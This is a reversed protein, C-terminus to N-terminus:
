NIQSPTDEGGRVGLSEALADEEQPLIAYSRIEFLIQNSILWMTVAERGIWRVFFERYTRDTKEDTGFSSSDLWHSDPHFNAQADAKWLLDGVTELDFNGTQYLRVIM